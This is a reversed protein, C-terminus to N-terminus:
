LKSLWGNGNRVDNQCGKNDNEGLATAHAHADHRRELLTPGVRKLTPCGGGLARLFFHSGEM